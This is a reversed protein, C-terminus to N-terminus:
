KGKKVQGPAWAPQIKQAEVGPVLGAPVEFAWILTPTAVLDNDSTVLLLHNGNDLDPGWALGEIKEPFSAGSLGFAPDLLDIFVSKAAPIFDQGAHDGSVVTQGTQPLVDNSVDTAGTIDMWVIKKFAAAAGPNGDREVLLFEHDNIAVMENVGNSRNYLQYVYEATAGTALDIKLIRNNIGRRSNSANLAGDQILANQMIGFLTKGDPSIALGEMGRNSQRGSTNGPPLENVGTASPNDILFKAPISIREILKGDRDFHFIYPGYEDSVYLSGDTAVRVGEPDFRLANLPNVTNYAGSQGVFAADAENTFLRTDLLAPKVVGTAPDVTIRLVQFRDKYDATTRGDFYGRDNVAIYTNAYGTYALGSGFAGLRNHPACQTNDVSSCVDGTLGSLDTADGPISGTGVLTISDANLPLTCAALVLLARTTKWRLTM